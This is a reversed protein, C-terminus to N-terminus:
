ILQHKKLLDIIVGRNAICATWVSKCWDGIACDREPGSNAALVDVATMSGREDPLYMTPWERKKRALETHATQVQRGSFQREVYLYLGVLGFVIAIPKTDATATQVARADAVHQLIFGPRGMSYVYVEDYASRTNDM